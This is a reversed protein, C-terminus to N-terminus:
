KSIIESLKRRPGRKKKRLTDERTQGGKLINIIALDTDRTYDKIVKRFQHRFSIFNIRETWFKNIKWVIIFSVLM